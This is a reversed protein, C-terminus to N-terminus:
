RKQLVIAEGFGTTCPLKRRCRCKSQHKTISSRLTRRAELRATSVLCIAIMPPPALPIKEAIDAASCRTSILFFSFCVVFTFTTTKSAVELVRVLTAMLPPPLHLTSCSVDFGVESSNFPYGRPFFSSVPKSLLLYTSLSSVVFFLRM